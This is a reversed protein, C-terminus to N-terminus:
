LVLIVQAIYFLMECPYESSIGYGSPDQWIGFPIQCFLTAVSIKALCFSESAQQEM